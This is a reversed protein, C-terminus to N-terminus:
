PISRFSFPRCPNGLSVLAAFVLLGATMSAPSMQEAAKDAHAWFLTDFVLGFPSESGTVVLFEEDPLMPSRWRCSDSSSMASEAFPRPVTALEPHYAVTTQASGGPPSGLICDVTVYVENNPSRPYPQCVEVELLV